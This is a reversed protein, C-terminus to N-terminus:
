RALVEEIQRSGVFITSEFGAAPPRWQSDQLLEGDETAVGIRFEYLPEGGPRLYLPALPKSADTAAFEYSQELVAESEPDPDFNRSRVIVVIRFLRYQTFLEQGRVIQIDVSRVPLSGVGGTLGDLVRERHEPDNELSYLYWARLVEPSDIEAHISANPLAAEGGVALQQSQLDYGRLALGTPTEVLYALSRLRVPFPHPNRFISSERGPSRRWRARAYAESDALKLRADVSFPAPAPRGQTVSQPEVRVSGQLGQPDGLKKVLIEKTAVDTTIQLGIQGTDRDVGTVSVDDDGVGFGSWQFAAEFTAPLPYVQIEDLSPPRLHAPQGRLHIRLLKKLLQVDDDVEGPTLRADIVVDNGDASEPKYDVTLYYNEEPSWHLFYMRPRYYFIGSAPNGDQFVELSLTALERLSSLGFADLGRVALMEHLRLPQPSPGVGARDLVEQETQEAAETAPRLRELIRAKSVPSLTAVDVRTALTGPVRAVVDPQAVAAGALASAALAVLTRKM